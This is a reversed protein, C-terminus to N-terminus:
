VKISQGLVPRTLRLNICVPIIHGCEPVAGSSRPYSAIKVCITAKVFPCICVLPFNSIINSLVFSRTAPPWLSRQYSKKKHFCLARHQHCGSCSWVGYFIIDLGAGGLRRGVSVAASTCTTETINHLGSFWVYKKRGTKRKVNILNNLILTLRTNDLKWTKWTKTIKKDNILM